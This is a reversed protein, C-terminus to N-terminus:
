SAATDPKGDSAQEAKNPEITRWRSFARHRKIRTVRDLHFDAPAIGEQGGTIVGEFEGSANVYCYRVTEGSDLEFICQAPLRGIASRMSESIETM